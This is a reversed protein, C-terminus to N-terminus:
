RPSATAAARTRARPAGGRARESRADLQAYTTEADLFDIAVRDPSTRARDRIWRGLTLQGSM